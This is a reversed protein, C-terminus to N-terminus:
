NGKKEKLKRQKQKSAIKKQHLGEGVTETGSPRTPRSWSVGKGGNLNEKGALNPLAAERLHVHEIKNKGQGWGLFQGILTKVGEGTRTVM